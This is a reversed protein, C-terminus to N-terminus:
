TIIYTFLKGATWKCQLENDYASELHLRAPTEYLKHFSALVYNFGTLISIFRFKHIFIWDKGRLLCM